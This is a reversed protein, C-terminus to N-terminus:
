RERYGIFWTRQAVPIAQGNIRKQRGDVVVDFAPHITRVQVFRHSDVVRREGRGALIDPYGEAFTTFFTSTSNGAYTGHGDGTRYLFDGNADVVFFDNGPSPLADFAVFFEELPVLFAVVGRLTGDAARVPTAYSIVPLDIGNRIDKQLRVRSMYIEGDEIVSGRLFFDRLSDDTRSTVDRDRILIGDRNLYTRSLRDGTADYYDCSIIYPYTRLTIDIDAAIREIEETTMPDHNRFTQFSQKHTLALLAMPIEYAVRSIDQIFPALRYDGEEVAHTIVRETHAQYWVVTGVAVAATAFVLFLVTLRHIWKKVRYLVAYM